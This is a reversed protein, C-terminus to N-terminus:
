DKVNNETEYGQMDGMYELMGCFLAFAIKRQYEEDCLLKEEKYNSLFGCEALVIPNKAQILLYVSSPGKKIQRENDPQLLAKVSGQLAKALEESKENKRGFFMQAGSYREATFKNQHILLVPSNPYEAMLKLRNKIDSVKQAAIGSKNEDHISVDEQRTMIVSYGSSLLMDRLMLAISLNIDKEKTGSVGIAGPDAGGHGPDIIVTRQAADVRAAAVRAREVPFSLLTFVVAFTLCISIVRAMGSNLNIFVTKRM